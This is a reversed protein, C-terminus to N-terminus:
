DWTKKFINEKKIEEATPKKILKRQHNWILEELKMQEADGLEDLNRSCDIKALDIKPEGVLLAEWWREVTKELHIIVHKGPVFSWYSEDKRIKFYFQGRILTNWTKFEGNKIDITIIQPSLSIRLQDILKVNVPIKVIVSLDCITQSWTYHERVAGNYSDSSQEAFVSIKNLKNNQVQQSNPKKDDIKSPIVIQEFNSCIEGSLVEYSKNRWKKFYEDVLNEVMGPLFGIQNEVNSEVYFDTCRFLFGFFADLFNAINKEGSLIQLFAPDHQGDM